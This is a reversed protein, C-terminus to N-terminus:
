RLTSLSSSLNDTVSAQRNSIMPYRKSLWTSQQTRIVESSATLEPAEHAKVM